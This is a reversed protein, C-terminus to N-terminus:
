GDNDSKKMNEDMENKKSKDGLNGKKGLREDVM